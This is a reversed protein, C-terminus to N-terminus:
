SDFASSKAALMHIENLDLDGFGSLETMPSWRADLGSRRDWPNFAPADVNLPAGFAMGGVGSGGGAVFVNDFLPVWTSANERHDIAVPVFVMVLNARDPTEMSASDEGLVILGGDTNTHSHISLMDPLTHGFSPNVVNRLIHSVLFYLESGKGHWLNDGATKDEFEKSDDNDEDDGPQNASKWIEDLIAPTEEIGAMVRERATQGTLVRVWPQMISKSFVTRYRMEKISQMLHTLLFFHTNLTPQTFSVDHVFLNPRELQTKPDHGIGLTFPMGQGIVHAIGVTDGLSLAGGPWMVESTRTQPDRSDVTMGANVTAIKLCVPLASIDDRTPPVYVGYGLKVSVHQSLTIDPRLRDFIDRLHGQIDVNYDLKHAQFSETTITVVAKLAHCEKQVDPISIGRLTEITIIRTTEHTYLTGHACEVKSPSTKIVEQQVVGRRYRFWEWQEQEEAPAINLSIDDQNEMRDQPVAEEYSAMENRQILQMIKLSDTFMRRFYGSADYKSALSKIEENSLNSGIACGGPDSFAKKDDISRHTISFWDSDKSYLTDEGWRSQFQPNYRLQEYFARTPVLSMSHVLTSTNETFLDKFNEEQTSVTSMTNLLKSYRNNNPCHYTEEMDSQVRYLYAFAHRLNYVLPMLHLNRPNLNWIGSKLDVSTNADNKFRNRVQQDMQGAKLGKNIASHLKRIVSLRNAQSLNMPQTFDSQNSRM